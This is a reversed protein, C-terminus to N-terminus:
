RLGFTTTMTIYTQVQKGADRCFAPKYHWRRFASVALNSLVESPSSVIRIGELNGDATLIAQAVVKGELRGKRVDRPYDPDVCDLLVPSEVEKCDRGERVEPPSVKKKCNPEAGAQPTASSCKASWILSGGLLGILFTNRLKQRM